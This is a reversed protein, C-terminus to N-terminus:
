RQRGDRAAADTADHVATTSPRCSQAPIGGSASSARARGPSRVPGANQAFYQRVQGPDSGPRLYPLDALANAAGLGGMFSIGARPGSLVGRDPPPTTAGLM